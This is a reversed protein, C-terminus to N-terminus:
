LIIGGSLSSCNLHTLSYMNTISSHIPFYISEGNNKNTRSVSSRWSRKPPFCSRFQPSIRCVLGGALWHRLSYDFWDIFQWKSDHFLTQFEGTLNGPLQIEIDEGQYGRLVDYSGLENPVKTGMINPAMGNGVWFYASIYFTKIKMATLTSSCDWRWTRCRRLSSQSHLLNQCRVRECQEIKFWAGIEQVRTSGEASSRWPRASHFSRRFWGPLLFFNKDCELSGGRCYFWDLTISLHSLMFQHSAKACKFSFLFLAMENGEWLPILENWKVCPSFKCAVLRGWSM